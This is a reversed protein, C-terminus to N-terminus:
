EDKEEVESTNELLDYYYDRQQIAFELKSRLRGCENQEAIYRSEMDEKETKYAEATAQADWLDIETETLQHELEEVQRRTTDLESRMEDVMAVLEENRDVLVHNFRQIDYMEEMVEKWQDLLRGNQTVANSAIREFDEKQAVLANYKKKSIWM